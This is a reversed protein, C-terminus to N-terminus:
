VATRISVRVNRPASTVQDDHLMKLVWSWAAAAMAAAPIDLRWTGRKPGFSVLYTDSNERPLTLGLFLVLPAQLLLKNGELIVLAQVQDEIVTSIKGREDVVFVGLHQLVAITDGLLGGGTNM